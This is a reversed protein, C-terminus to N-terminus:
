AHTIRRKHGCKASAIFAANVGHRRASECFISVKVGMDPVPTAAASHLEQFEGMSERDTIRAEATGGTRAHIHDHSSYGRSIGTGRRFKDSERPGAPDNGFGHDGSPGNSGIIGSVNPL